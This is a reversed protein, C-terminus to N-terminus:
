AAVKSGSSAAVIKEQINPPVVEYKELQMSYQARLEPATIAWSPAGALTLPLVLASLAFVVAWVWGRRTSTRTAM